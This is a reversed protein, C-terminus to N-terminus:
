LYAAGAIRAPGVGQGSDPRNRFPLANYTHGDNRLLRLLLSNDHQARRLMVIRM